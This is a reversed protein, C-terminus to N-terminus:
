RNLHLPIKTCHATFIRSHIHTQPHIQLHPSPSFPRQLLTYKTLKFTEPSGQKIRGVVTGEEQHKKEWEGILRTFPSHFQVRGGSKPDDFWKTQRTPTYLSVIKTLWSLSLPLLHHMRHSRPLISFFVFM